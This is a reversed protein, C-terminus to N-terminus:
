FSIFIFFLPFFGSFSHFFLFKCTLIMLMSCFFLLTWSFNGFIHGQFFYKDENIRRLADGGLFFFFFFFFFFVCM